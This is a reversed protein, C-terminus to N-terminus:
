SFDGHPCSGGENASINLHDATINVTPGVINITGDAEITIYGSGRKLEIKGTSHIKVIAENELNKLEIEGNPFLRVRAGDTCGSGDGDCGCVIGSPDSASQIEVEGDNFFKIHGLPYSEGNRNEIYITGDDDFFITSGSIHHFKVRDKKDQTTDSEDSLFKFWTCHTQVNDINKCGQCHPDAHGKFCDFVFQWDRTDHYGRLCDPHRAPPHGYYNGDEDRLPERWKAWKFLYDYCIGASTDHDRCPPEQWHNHVGGLIIANQNELFIVAVLDGVRPAYVRGWLNGFDQQVAIVRQRHAQRSTSHVERLHVDMVNFDVDGAGEKGEGNNYPNLHPKVDQVICFECKLLRKDERRMRDLVRSNGTTLKGWEM